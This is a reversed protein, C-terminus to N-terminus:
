ETRSCQYTLEINVSFFLTNFGKKGLIHYHLPAAMAISWLTSTPAGLANNHYLTKYFYHHSHVLCMQTPQTNVLPNNTKTHDM